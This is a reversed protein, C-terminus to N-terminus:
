EEGKAKELEEVLDQWWSETYENNEKESGRYNFWVEGALHFVRWFAAKIQALTYTKVEDESLQGLVHIEPVYMM